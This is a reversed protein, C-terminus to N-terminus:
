KVVLKRTAIKGEEEIKVLYIGRNLNSVNVNEHSQVNNNYVQQGAINYIEVKKHLNARSSMYLIGNSVPNPYMAFNEIQNKVVSLVSSNYVTNTFPNSASANTTVGDLANKGSYDWESEVFTSSPGATNRYAWGDEYDWPKGSGDVDVDGFIDIISGNEFLVIADDGNIQMANTIYDPEFGFFSTFGTKESAVYIYEGANALVNPFTFEQGNSGHGNNASEVGFISLDAIDNKVYLEIGKPVGGSIPGDYIGTIVLDQGFFLSTFFLTLILIIFKQM